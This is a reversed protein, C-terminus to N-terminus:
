LSSLARSASDAGFDGRLRMPIGLQPKTKCGTHVGTRVPPQTAGQFLRNSTAETTSVSLGLPVTKVGRISFM